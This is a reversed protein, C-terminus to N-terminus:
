SPTPATDARALAAAEPDLLVLASRAARLARAAPLPSDSGQLLRRVVTAKATGFAALCVLAAGALAVLTLTMRRSPPKPADTVAVVSRTGEDLAAHAPFLSCVHGDAGMGLLVLDLPRDGQIRGLEHAYAAAAQDLDTAEARMRHVHAPDLPVRDLWLRRAVGFNSAPDDPAVAREDDWFVDVLPWDVAATALAPFFAEAVSGGPVACVFRGRANIASRAATEYRAVFAHALRGPEDIVVEPVVTLDSACRLRGPFRRV